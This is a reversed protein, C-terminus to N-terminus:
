PALFNNVLSISRQLVETRADEEHVESVDEVVKVLLVYVTDRHQQRVQVSHSWKWQHTLVDRSERLTARYRRSLM